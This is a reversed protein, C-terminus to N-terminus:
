TQNNNTSIYSKTQGLGAVRKYVLETQYMWRNIMADKWYLKTPSVSTSIGKSSCDQNIWGDDQNVWTSEVDVCVNMNYMMYTSTEQFPTVELDDIKTSKGNYVM